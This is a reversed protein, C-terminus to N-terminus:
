GQSPNSPSSQQDKIRSARIEETLAIFQAYSEPDATIRKYMRVSLEIYRELNEEAERLQEENLNPYLDRITIERDKHHMPKSM